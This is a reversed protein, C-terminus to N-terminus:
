PKGSRFPGSHNVSPEGAHAPGVSSDEWLGSVRCTFFWCESLAHFVDSLEPLLIDRDATQPLACSPRTQCTTRRCGVDLVLDLQVMETEGARFSHASAQDHTLLPWAPRALM